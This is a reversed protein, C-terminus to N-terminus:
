NRVFTLEREVFLSVGRVHLFQSAFKLNCHTFLSNVSACIGKQQSYFPFENVKVPLLFSKKNAAPSLSAEIVRSLQAPKNRLFFHEKVSSSAVELCSLPERTIELLLLYIENHNEMYIFILAFCKLFTLSTLSLFLPSASKHVEWIEEM